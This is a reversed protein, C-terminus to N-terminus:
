KSNLKPFNNSNNSFTNETNINKLGHIDYSIGLMAMIFDSNLIKYM